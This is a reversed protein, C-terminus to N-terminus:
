FVIARRVREREPEHKEVGYDSLIVLAERLRDAPFAEAVLATIQNTEISM